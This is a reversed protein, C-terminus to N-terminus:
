VIAREILYQKLSHGKLHEVGDSRYGEPMQLAVQAGHHRAIEDETSRALAPLIVYFADVDLVRRVEEGSILEEYFKEGARAGTETIKVAERAYGYRPALLDRMAEALGEIGIAHMKTVFIEGGQARAVTELVLDVAEDITMVFRNMARDTLTIPGGAAIQRAFIPVVSGNSGLVNGFRTAAFVPGTGNHQSAAATILREGLLKSTGMVSTPNVAKDSSTFLVHGVDAHRAADILNQTGLVNTSVADRPSGECTGVHKFAATHLVIDVGRLRELLQDRDRVDGLLLQIRTDDFANALEFLASENNDIGLIQCAATQQLHRLCASGVTGCAGTVLVTRDRFFQEIIPKTM